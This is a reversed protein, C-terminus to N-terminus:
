RSGKFPMDSGFSQRRSEDDVEGHVSAKLEEQILEAYATEANPAWKEVVLTALRRYLRYHYEAVDQEKLAFVLVTEDEFSVESAWSQRGTAPRETVVFDAM